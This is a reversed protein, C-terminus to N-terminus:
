YRKFSKFDKSTFPIIKGSPQIPTERDTLATAPLEPASGVQLDIVKKNEADKLRQLFLKEKEANALYFEAIMKADIRLKKSSQKNQQRIMATLMRIERTSRNNFFSYYQSAICQVLKNDVSAYVIAANFPDERGEVKSFQISPLSFLDNWYSINGVTIGSSPDVKVAGRRFPPLTALRYKEDYAIFRSPRSGTSAIGATFADRPSVSLSPHERTDYKEFLYTELETYFDALNWVALNKPNTAPTLFRVVKTNQTNATLTNVFQTKATGFLRECTSGYRAKATPRVKKTCDFRGLLAEFYVSGFESGGDVIFIQPLRNFRKVCMRLVMMCSRFSPPDFSLYFALVRRSFADTLLSLWPRGLSVGYYSVLQIDLLTHDLHGAEFPRDGHRPTTQELYWCYPEYQYAAKTGHRKVIQKHIRRNKVEKCFTKYSVIEVKKEECRKLYVGYTLKKSPSKVNEYHTEIVEHMLAISDEPPKRKKNGRRSVKGIAGLYGNGAGYVAEGQRWAAVYRQRTRLTIGSGEISQGALHARVHPMIRNGIALDEKSARRIVELEIDEDSSSEGGMVACIEGKQILAEVSIDPLWTLRGTDERLYTKGEGMNVIEWPIGNWVLFHGPQLIIPQLESLPSVAGVTILSYADAIEKNRFVNVRWPEALAAAELDVYIEKAAILRYIDDSTVEESCNLLTHLTIGPQDAVLSIIIDYAKNGTKKIKKM